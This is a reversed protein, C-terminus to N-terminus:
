AALERAEPEAEWLRVRAYDQIVQDNDIQEQIATQLARSAFAEIGGRANDDPWGMANTYFQGEVGVEIVVEPNFGLAGVIVPHTIQIAM